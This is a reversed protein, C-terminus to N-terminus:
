TKVLRTDTYDMEAASQNAAVFRGGGYALGLHNSNDDSLSLDIWTLGDDLSYMSHDGSTGSTNQVAMFVGNGYRVVQWSDDNSQASIVTWSTGDNTSRMVNDGAVDSSVAVFVGNGYTVSSWSDNDGGASVTSWSVGDNTSRIVRDGSNGVAVFVGNGYAVDQWGDNDGAASVASWSVGDNTSRMVRNTGTSSVAVFVGNGYTVGRWREGSGTPPTVVSWTLGLDTSRMISDGASDQGVAVFVGNGYAVAEWNDNDGAATINSWTEGRDTSRVVVNTDTGVGIFVGAGYALAVIQDTSPRSVNTWLDVETTLDTSLSDVESKSYVDLNTRATAVNSLGSLNNAKLLVTNYFNDDDAIAAAIENLTDLAAPAGDVLDGVPDRTLSIYGLSQWAAGDWYRVQGDSVDIRKANTPLNATTPGGDHMTLNDTINDRIEQPFSTKTSTLAPKNYDSSM